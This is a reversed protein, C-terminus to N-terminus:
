RLVACLAYTHCTLMNLTRVMLNDATDTTQAGSLAETSATGQLNGTWNEHGLCPDFLTRPLVSTVLPLTSQPQIMHEQQQQQQIRHRTM